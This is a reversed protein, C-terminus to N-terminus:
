SRGSNLRGLQNWLSKLEKTTPTLLHLVDRHRAYRLPVSIIQKICHLSRKEESWLYAHLDSWNENSGDSCVISAKYTTTMRDEPAM